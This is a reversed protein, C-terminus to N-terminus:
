GIAPMAIGMARLQALQGVYEPELLPPCDGVRKQSAVLKVTFIFCTQEGCRRWSTQPLSTWVLNRDGM